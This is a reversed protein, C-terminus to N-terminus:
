KRRLYNSGLKLSALIWEAIDETFMGENCPREKKEIYQQRIRATKDECIDGLNSITKTISDMQKMKIDLETALFDVKRLTRQLSLLTRILFYSLIAFIVVASIAAIEFYM